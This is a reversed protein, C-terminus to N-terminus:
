GVRSDRETPDVIELDPDEAPEDASHPGVEDAGAAGAGAAGAGDADPEADALSPMLAALRPGWATAREPFCRRLLDLM